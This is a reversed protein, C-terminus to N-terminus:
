SPWPGAALAKELTLVKSAPFPSLWGAAYGDQGLRAELERVGELVARAFEGPEGLWVEWELAFLDDPADPGPEGRSSLLNLLTRKGTECVLRLQGPEQVFDATTRASGRASDIAM